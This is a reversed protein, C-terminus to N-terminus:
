AIFVIKFFKDVRCFFHSYAHNQVAYEIMRAVVANIEVFVAIIRGDATKVTTPHGQYETETGAAIVVHRSTDKSLDVLPLEEGRLTAAVCMIVAMGWLRDGMKM